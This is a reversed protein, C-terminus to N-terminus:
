PRPSYKCTTGLACSIKLNKLTAGAPSRMNEWDMFVLRPKIELNEWNVLFNPCKIRQPRLQCIFLSNQLFFYLEM